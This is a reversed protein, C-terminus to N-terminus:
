EQTLERFLRRPKLLVHGIKRELESDPNMNWHLYYDRMSMILKKYKKPHKVVIKWFLETQNKNAYSSRSISHQRYHFLVQPIQYVTDEPELLSILFDWDEWGIMSEDYGETQDYDRRRYICSSFICNSLLLSDYQYPPLRWPKNKRGFFDAKCYVLKTEPFETFRKIAIELYEPSITDDADLPLIFEGHSLRIANNRAKAPGGNPQSYVKIRGDKESYSKAIAETNDTSGDNMIICEWNQYTQLLISDLTERIFDQQNYAPVIISVLVNMNSMQRCTFPKDDLHQEIIEQFRRSISEPSFLDLLQSRDIFCNTTQAAKLATLIEVADNHCQLISPVDKMIVSVPSNEGSIAVIPIPYPLYCIAKSSLFVDDPIDAAIDVLCDAISYYADINPTQPLFLVKGSAILDSCTDKYASVTEGVFYLKSDPRDELFLRFAAVLGDIKRLGYLSGAYLINFGEHARPKYTTSNLPKYPTFVYDWTGQFEPLISKQYRVMQPNSLMFLNAEQCLERLGQGIKSHLTYDDNLWPLPSPMGDVSYIFYPRRLTTALIKGLNLSAYYGNSTLTIIADYERDLIVARHKRFMKQAWREDSPNCGYKRWKKQANRWPKVGGKLQICRVNGQLAEAAVEGALLTIDSYAALSRILQKFVIGPATNAVDLAIILYQKKNTM